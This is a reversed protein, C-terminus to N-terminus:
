LMCLVCVYLCVCESECVCLCVRVEKVDSAPEERAQHGEFHKRPPRSRQHTEQQHGRGDLGTIQTLHFACQSISAVFSVTDCRQAQWHSAAGVVAAVRDLCSM